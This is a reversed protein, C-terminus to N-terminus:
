SRSPSVTSDYVRHTTTYSQGYRKDLRALYRPDPRLGIMLGSLSLCDAVLRPSPPLPRDHLSKDIFKPLFDVLRSSDDGDYLRYIFMLALWMRDSLPLSTNELDNIELDNPGVLACSILLFCQDRHLDYSRGNLYIGHYTLRISRRTVPDVHCMAKLCAAVREKSLPRGQWTPDFCEDFLEKMRKSVKAMDDKDPWEVEPVMMVAATMFETDTSTEIVQQIVRSETADVPSDLCRLDLSVSSERSGASEPDNALSRSRRKLTSPIGSIYALARSVYDTVM